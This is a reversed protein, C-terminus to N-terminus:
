REMSHQYTHHHYVVASVQYPVSRTHKLFRYIQVQQYFFPYHILVFPPFQNLRLAIPFIAQHEKLFVPYLLLHILQEPNRLHKLKYRSLVAFEQHQQM